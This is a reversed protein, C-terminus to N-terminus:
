KWIGPIKESCNFCKGNKIKNDIVEFYKRKILLKKCKPCYTNNGEDDILNGTYVYNIGQALAINRAKTLIELSTPPLNLLKFSPYFATFHLPTDRGLNRKIWSVLKSIDEVSDNLGPILLNTLEIWVGKEKMTKISELVPALEAKCVQKYFEPNISKLDINSADLYNCLEKLPEQNIFGNTVTVNKIKNKRAEKAIDLAYEYFITPETYTYAIIKAKKKKAEKVVESPSIELAKIDDISCQSIEFNQCFGCSLNCGSTALSLSKQGPLFHYLPKKEIPDIALSCPKNYVLSILEGSINKRAHCKGTQGEKLLCFHPCLQCQIDEGLKRWYLAEKGEKDSIKFKQDSDFFEKKSTLM